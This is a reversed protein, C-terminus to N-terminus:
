NMCLLLDAFDIFDETGQVLDVKGDFRLIPDLCRRELGSVLEENSSILKKRKLLLSVTECM